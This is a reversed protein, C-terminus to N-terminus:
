NLTRRIMGIFLSIIGKVMKKIDWTMHQFMLLPDLGVKQEKIRGMKQIM